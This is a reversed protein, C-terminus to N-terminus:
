SGPQHDQLDCFGEGFLLSATQTGLLWCLTAKFILTLYRSGHGTAFAFIIGLIIAIAIAYYFVAQYKYYISWIWRSFPTEAPAEPNRSPPNSPLPTQPLRGRFLPCKETSADHDIPLSQYSNPTAEAVLLPSSDNENRVSQEIPKTSSTGNVLSSVRERISHRKPIKLSNGKELADLDHFHQPEISLTEEPITKFESALPISGRDIKEKLTKKLSSTSFSPNLVTENSPVAKHGTNDSKEKVQTTDAKNVAGNKASNVIGATPTKKTSESIKKKLPSSLSSNRVPSTSSNMKSASFQGSARLNKKEIPDNTSSVPSPGKTAKRSPSWLKPMLRNPHSNGSLKGKTDSPAM